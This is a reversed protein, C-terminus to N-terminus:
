TSAMFELIHRALEPGAEEQLFHGPGQIVVPGRAVPILDVFRRAQELTFIPDSDSFMVLAPKKWSRLAEHAEAMERAGPDGPQLAIMRPFRRVGALSERNPFPADYARVEDDGMQVSRMSRRLLEGPSLRELIAASNNIWDHLGKSAAGGRGSFLGTNLILLRAVRDPHQTALRLGLPGGWDQMVLTIRRLDLAEVFAELNAFHSAFTYREDDLWKDSRGFGVYDPAVARHAAAIPPIMKRYLYSWTPEGHLMLVPDGVGGDVYHMRVGGVEVYHPAFPYGPLDRFREDPTRFVGPPPEDPM